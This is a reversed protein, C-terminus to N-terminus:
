SISYPGIGYLVDEIIANLDPSEEQLGLAEALADSDHNIDLNPDAAIRTYRDLDLFSQGLIERISHYIDDDHPHILYADPIAFVRYQSIEELQGIPHVLDVALIRYLVGADEFTELEQLASEFVPVRQGRHVGIWVGEKEIKHVSDPKLQDGAVTLEFVEIFYPLGEQWEEPLLVEAFSSSLPDDKVRHEAGPPPEFTNPNRSRIWDLIEPNSFLVELEFGTEPDFNESLEEIYRRPDVLGVPGLRGSLTRAENEEMIRVLTLGKRSFFDRIITRLHGPQQVFTVGSEVWDNGPHQRDLIIYGTKPNTTGGYEYSFISMVKLEGTEARSVAVYTQSNELNIEHEDYLPLYSVETLDEGVNWQIPLFKESDPREGVINGQPESTIEGLSPIMPFYTFMQMEQEVIRSLRAISQEIEVKIQGSDDPADEEEEEGLLHAYTAAIERAANSFPRDKIEELGPDDIVMRTLRPYYANNIFHDLQDYFEPHDQYNITSFIGKLYAESLSKFLKKGFAERAQEIEAPTPYSWSELDKLTQDAEELVRQTREHSDQPPIPNVLGCTTCAIIIAVILFSLMLTKIDAEGREDTPLERLRTLVGQFAAVLGSLDSQNLLQEHNPSLESPKIEM